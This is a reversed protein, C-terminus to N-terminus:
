SDEEVAVSMRDFVTELEGTLTMSKMQNITDQLEKEEKTLVTGPPATATTLM